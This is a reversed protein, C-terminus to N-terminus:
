TESLARRSVVHSTSLLVQLVEERRDRLWGPVCTSWDELAPVYAIPPDVGWGCDFVFTRREEDEVVVEEKWRATAVLAL